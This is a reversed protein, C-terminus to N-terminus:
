NCFRVRLNELGSGQCMIYFWIWRGILGQELMGRACMIVMPWRGGVNPSFFGKAEKGALGSFGATAEM